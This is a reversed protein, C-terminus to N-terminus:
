SSVQAGKGRWEFPSGQSTKAWIGDCQTGMEAPDLPGSRRGLPLILIRNFETSRLFPRTWRQLLLAFGAIYFIFIWTAPIDAKGGIASM